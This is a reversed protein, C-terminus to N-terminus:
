LSEPSRTDDFDDAHCFTFPEPLIDLRSVGFLCKLGVFGPKPPAKQM